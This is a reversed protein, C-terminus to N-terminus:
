TTNPEQTRCSCGSPQWCLPSHICRVGHGTPGPRTTLWRDSMWRPLWRVTFFGVPVSAVALPHSQVAEFGFLSTAAILSLVTTAVLSELTRLPSSGASTRPKEVIGTTWLDFGLAPWYMATWWTRATGAMGLSSVVDRTTTRSFDHSAFLKSSSTNNWRVIAIVPM